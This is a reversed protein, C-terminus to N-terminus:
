TTAKKDGEKAKLYKAIRSSKWKRRETFVFGKKIYLFKAPILKTSVLYDMTEQLLPLCTAENSDFVLGNFVTIAHNCSGDSAYLSGVLFQKESLQHIDHMYYNSISKPQLWALGLSNLYAPLGKLPTCSGGMQVNLFTEKNANMEAAEDAMSVWSISLMLLPLTFM